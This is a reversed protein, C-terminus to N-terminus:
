IGICKLILIAVAKFKIKNHNTNNMFMKYFIQHFM